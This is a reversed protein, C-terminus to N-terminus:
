CNYTKMVFQKYLFVVVLFFPSKFFSSVVIHLYISYFRVSNFQFSLTLILFVSSSFYACCFFFISLFFCVSFRLLLLQCLCCSLICFFRVSCVSFVQYEFFNVIWITLTWGSRSCSRLHSNYTCTCPYKRTNTNMHIRICVLHRYARKYYMISVAFPWSICFSLMLANAIIVGAIAISFLPSPKLCAPLWGAMWDTTTITIITVSSNRHRAIYICDSRDIHCTSRITTAVM